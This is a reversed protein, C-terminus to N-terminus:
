IHILSLNNIWLSIAEIQRKERDSIGSALDQATTIAERAESGIGGMMAVWALGAHALAFGEDTDIAQQFKEAPGFNQSLLLDIGEM